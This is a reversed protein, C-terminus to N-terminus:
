EGTISYILRAGDILGVNSTTTTAPGFSDTDRQRTAQDLGAQGSVPPTDWQLLTGGGSSETLTLGTSEAPALEQIPDFHGSPNVVVARVADTFDPGATGEESSWAFTTFGDADVHATVDAYIPVGGYRASGPIEFHSDADTRVTAYVKWPSRPEIYDQHTGWAIAARGSPGVAVSIDPSSLFNWYAGGLTQPKDFGHGARWTQVVVRKNVSYVILLEHSGAWALRVGTVSGKGGLVNTHGMAGSTRGISIHLLDM